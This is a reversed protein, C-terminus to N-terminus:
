GEKVEAQRMSDFRIYFTTHVDVRGVGGEFMSQVDRFSQQEM